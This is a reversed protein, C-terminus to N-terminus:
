IEFAEDIYEFYAVKKSLGMAKVMDKCLKMPTPLPRPDIYKVETLKEKTIDDDVVKEEKVAHFRSVEIDSINVRFFTAM